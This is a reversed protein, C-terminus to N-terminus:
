TSNIWHKQPTHLVFGREPAVPGGILVQNDLSFSFEPSLYLEMQELLDEVEVGIPRNVMIGMAGKQDHECIYIVAREFFTEDLSPMAILFHDKFSDM